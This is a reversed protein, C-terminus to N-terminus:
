YPEPEALWCESFDTTTAPAALVYKDAPIILFRKNAPWSPPTCCRLAALETIPDVVVAPVVIRAWSSRGPLVLLCMFSVDRPAKIM